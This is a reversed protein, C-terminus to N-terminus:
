SAKLVRTPERRRQPAVHRADTGQARAPYRALLNTRLFGARFVSAADTEGRCGAADTGPRDARPQRGCWGPVQARLSERSRTRAPSVSARASRARLWPIRVARGPRAPGLLIRDRGAARRRPAEDRSVLRRRPDAPAAGVQLACV